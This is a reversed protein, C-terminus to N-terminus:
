ILPAVPKRRAPDEPLEVWRSLADESDWLALLRAPGTFTPGDEALRGASRGCRCRRRRHDVGVIDGCILCHLVTM